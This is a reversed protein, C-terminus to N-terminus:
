IFIQEGFSIPGIPAHSVHNPSRLQGSKVAVGARSREVGLLLRIRDATYKNVPDNYVELFERQLSHGLINGTNLILQQRPTSITAWDSRGACVFTKSVGSPM